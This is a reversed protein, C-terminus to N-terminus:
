LVKMSNLNKLIKSFVMLKKEFDKKNQDEIAEALAPLEQGKYGTYRGSSYVFHKYWRRENLGEHDLLHREFYTLVTNAAKTKFHLKIRQWYSLNDWDQHMEVLKELNADIALTNKELDELESKVKKVLKGSLNHCNKTVWEEPIDLANFYSTLALAYDHTRLKLVPEEVLHLIVLSIYKSMLNHFVFGPDGFKEMWHYSDYISHYQYIASKKLDSSFGMDASPIGLHDLFATYDSGSGLTGIKGNYAIFHDYLSQTSNPYTLEKASTLLVENLIPSASLKLIPGVTAVDTNLYAICERKLMKSYYEAYETSGVLAYEEGDWSAFVISVNPVWGIKLLENFARIVELVVASGSHPDGAAATWSDHHNGVLIFKSDDKGKIKGMVNHMNTVNFEQMNYLNLTYKPNPGTSYDFDDVLGSWGEVRQGCGKLKALIPQVERYSIPLAPITPITLYPSQREKDEGPKIAYGPTTPDGPTYPLFQSSGRQIASPNRAPGEPYPKYGNQETIEGDDYTDTYLLVAAMGHDQAFKVKLGRFIKGYRIIAIKDRLDVGLKVLKQFDEQTGYHCYVYETTVNGNAAYGLFAPVSQKSTPDEEIVDEILKPTFVITNNKLLHLGNELPYSMYSTYIDVYADQLGFEQFKSLTFNVMAMNTGALQLESSYENLWKAAYNTHLAKIIISKSLEYHEKATLSNSTVVESILGGLKTIMCFFSFLIFALLISTYRTKRPPTCSDQLELDQQKEPNM